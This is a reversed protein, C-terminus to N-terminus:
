QLIFKRNLYNIDNNGGKIEPVIHHVQLNIKGNRQKDKLSKDCKNKCWKCIKRNHEIVEQTVKLYDKNWESYEQPVMAHHLSKFIIFKGKFANKM